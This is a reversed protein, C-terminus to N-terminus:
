PRVEESATSPSPTVVGNPYFTLRINALNTQPVVEVEGEVKANEFGRRKLEKSLSTKFRTYNEHHFVQGRRLGLQYQGIKKRTNQDLADIGFVAVDGVLTPPGEEVGIVVDVAPSDKHQKGEALVVKAAYYGRAEYFRQVRIRDRQLELEDFTHQPGREVLGVPKSVLGKKLERESVNHVGRVELNSVYPRGDTSHACGTAVVLSM